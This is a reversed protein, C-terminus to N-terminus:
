EPLMYGSMVSAVFITALKCRFVFVDRRKCRPWGLKSLFRDFYDRDSSHIFRHLKVHGIFIQQFMQELEQLHKRELDTKDDKERSHVTLNRCRYPLTPGRAVAAELGGGSATAAASIARRFSPGHERSAASLARRVASSRLLLSSM